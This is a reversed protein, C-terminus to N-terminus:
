QPINTYESNPAPVLRPTPFGCLVCYSFRLDYRVSIASMQLLRDACLAGFYRLPLRAFLSFVRKMLVSCDCPLM